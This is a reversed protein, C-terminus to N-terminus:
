KNWKIMDLVFSLDLWLLNGKFHKIELTHRTPSRRRDNILIRSSSKLYIRKTEIEKSHIRWM